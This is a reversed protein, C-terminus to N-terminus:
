KRDGFSYRLWFSVDRGSADAYYRFRDLLDRYSTDLLNNAAIGIRLENKGIPRTMSASVNLLGYAAPPDMLDIQEPFRFQRGVHILGAEIQLDRWKGSGEREYRISSRIRDSPMLYLPTGALLDDGRVVSAQMHISWAKSFRYRLSLDSGILRADTAVHTFVPFAGRITLLTGGPRLYIYNSIIDHYVTLEMGLREILFVAEIEAVAKLSRENKLSSDGIEVAAAGHHLGESYLESVHPPRYATSFNARAKWRDNIKWNAGGSIANNFFSHQTHRWVDNEDFRYVDLSASEMRLGGELELRDSLPYHELVFAGISSRVHNPILPRIGTGSLNVNEQYLVNAGIKGHLKKGIWHKYIIDGTHTLLDLDLALVDMLANRRRDFERRANNQYSYTIVMQGRDTVFYSSEAKLLHHVVNQRPAEIAYTFPSVTWPEQRAIALQLDTLNGIHAARLIGLDRQFYSYYIVSKWRIRQLGISASGGAERLGTNSLVYAPAQQDGLLRGSGQLRWGFGRLKESGGQLLMAGNGGRGNTQGGARFEGAVGHDRPLQVPETIVVGGMADSGYQVAAAGKVVTLRDASFPDINPAHETGWQQDEQRVGQNLLLIRNGFMGHIVPKAITPGTRISNVGSIGMLMTAIDSGATKEMTSRDVEVQSHGVNEDPRERIVELERLEEHHHELRFNMVLSKKLEITREIPECGLHMVRVRYTGPCLGEIRYSGDEGSVAGVGQDPLFVEAFSLPTRDHDDIVQGSLMLDCDTQALAVGMCCFYMLFSRVLRACFAM